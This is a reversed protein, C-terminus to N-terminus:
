RWACSSAIRSGAAKSPPAEPARPAPADQLFRVPEPPAARLGAGLALAALALSLKRRTM